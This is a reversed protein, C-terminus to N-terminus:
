SQLLHIGVHKIIKSGCDSHRVPNSYITCILELLSLALAGQTVNLRKQKTDTGDKKPANEFNRFAVTLKTM